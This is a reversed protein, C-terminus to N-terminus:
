ILAANFRSDCTQINDKFHLAFRNINREQLQETMWFFSITYFTIRHRMFFVKIKMWGNMNTKKQKPHPKTKLNLIFYVDVM